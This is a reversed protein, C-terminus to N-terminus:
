HNIKTVPADIVGVFKDEYRLAENQQSTKKVPLKSLQHKKPM